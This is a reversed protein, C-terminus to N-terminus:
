RDSRSLPRRVPVGSVMAFSACAKLTGTSHSEYIIESAEVDSHCKCHSQPALASIAAPQASKTCQCQLGLSWNLGNMKPQAPPPMGVPDHGSPEWADRMASEVEFPGDNSASMAAVIEAHIRRTEEDRLEDRAWPPVYMARKDRDDHVPSSM